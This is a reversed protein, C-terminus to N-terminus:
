EDELLHYKEAMSYLLNFIWENDYNPFNENLYELFNRDTESMKEKYQLCVNLIIM